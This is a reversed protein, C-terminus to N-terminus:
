TATEPECAQLNEWNGSMDVKSPKRGQSLLRDAIKGLLEAPPRFGEAADESDADMLLDISVFVKFDGDEVEDDDASIRASIVQSVGAPFACVVQKNLVRLSEASLEKGLASKESTFASDEFTVQFKSM